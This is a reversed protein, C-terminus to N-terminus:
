LYTICLGIYLNDFIINHLGGGGGGHVGYGSDIYGGGGGGCLNSNVSHIPLHRRVDRLKIAYNKPVPLKPVWGRWIKQYM